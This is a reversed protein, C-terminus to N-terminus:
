RGSPICQNDLFLFDLGDDLQVLTKFLVEDGDEKIDLGGVIIKRRFGEAQDRTLEPDREDVGDADGCEEASEAEGGAAFMRAQNAQPRGTMDPASRPDKIFEFPPEADGGTFRCLVETEGQLGDGAETAAGDSGDDDDVLFVV